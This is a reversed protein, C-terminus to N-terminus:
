RGAEPPVEAVVFNRGRAEVFAPVRELAFRARVEPTLLYVPADLSDEVSALGDWGESRELRTALYLVRRDGAERGLRRATVVQREDSADFVVLRQTSPLRDLPNLTEGARVLLTGDTSHLDRPATITPDVARTRPEVAVPLEEFTVRQWYRELAHERLKELDLAALRRQLEEILDPETVPKV